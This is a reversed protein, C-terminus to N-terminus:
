NKKKLCFVAYSIKVHSSNLRTSKRDAAKIYQKMSSEMDGLMFDCTGLASFILALSNSQIKEAFAIGNNLCIKAEQYEGKSILFRGKKYYLSSIISTDKESKALNLADEYLELCTDFDGKCNEANEIKENLKETQGYVSYAISFFFIHLTCIIIFSRTM